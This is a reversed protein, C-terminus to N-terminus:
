FIRQQVTIQDGPYIPYDFAPNSQAKDADLYYTQGERILLIRKRNAYNNFGRAASIVKLLTLNESNQIKGEVNVEGSVYIYRVDEVNVVLQKYYANIKSQLEKELDDVKKGSARISGIESPPPAITGDNNVRTTFSPPAGVGGYQIIITDGPKLYLNPTHPPGGGRPGCGVLGAAFVVLASLKVLDRLLKM